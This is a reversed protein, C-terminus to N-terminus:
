NVVLTIRTSRIGTLFVDCRLVPTRKGLTCFLTCAQWSVANFPHCGCDSGNVMECSSIVWRGFHVKMHVHMKFSLLSSIKLKQRWSAAIAEGWLWGCFLKKRSLMQFMHAGPSPPVRRRVSSPTSLPFIFPPPFPIVPVRSQCELLQCGQSIKNCRLSAETPFRILLCCVTLM